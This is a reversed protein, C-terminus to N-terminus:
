APTGAKQRRTSSDDSLPAYNAQARGAEVDALVLPWLREAESPCCSGPRVLLVVVAGCARYSAALEGAREASPDNLFIGVVQPVPDAPPPGLALNDDWVRVTWGPPTAGAVDTLAHRAMGERKPRCPDILLAHCRRLRGVHRDIPL